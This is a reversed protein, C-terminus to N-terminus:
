SGKSVGCVGRGMLQEELNMWVGALELVWVMQIIVSTSLCSWRVHGLPIDVVEHAPKFLFREM